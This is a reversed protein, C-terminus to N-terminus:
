STPPPDAVTVVGGIPSATVDVGVPTISAATYAGAVADLAAPVAAKLAHAIVEIDTDPPFTHDIVIHATPSKEAFAM